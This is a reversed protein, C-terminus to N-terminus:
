QPGYTVFANGVATGIGTLVLSNGATVAFTAGTVGYVGNGTSVTSETDSELEWAQAYSDGTATSIYKHALSSNFAAGGTLYATLGSPVTTAVITTGGATDHIPYVQPNQDLFYQALATDLNRANNKRQTDQAKGRAGALSVIILAALIGIIAIVVLLEILTFGKRAKLNM